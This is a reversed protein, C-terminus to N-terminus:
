TRVRQRSRFNNFGAARTFRGSTLGADFRSDQAATLVLSGGVSFTGTSVNLAGSSATIVPDTAGANFTLTTFTGTGLTHTNANNILITPTVITPSTDFVVGGTGTEGTVLTAFNASSPTAVFADFGAARTIAAWSTLDADLPQGTAATLVLSGGVSLTGTSVNLAGSSATIVPDTAGADFTLTTFTGTGLTLTNSAITGIVPSTLTKNTLTETGTLTASNFTRAVRM